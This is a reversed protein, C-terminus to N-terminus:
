AMMVAIEIVIIKVTEGTNPAMVSRVRRRIGKRM